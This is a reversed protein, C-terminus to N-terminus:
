RLRDLLKHYSHLSLDMKKANVEGALNELAVISMKLNSFGGPLKEATM